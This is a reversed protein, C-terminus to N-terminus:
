LLCYIGVTRVFINKSSFMCKRFSAIAKRMIVVFPNIDRKIFEASMSTRHELGM